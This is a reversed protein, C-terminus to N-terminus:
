SRSQRQGASRWKRAWPVSRGPLRHPIPTSSTYGVLGGRTVGDLGYPRPDAPERQGPDPAVIELYTRPGLALVKNHTGQGMHQGGGAARVGFRGEVDAVAAELAPAAYIIHDVLV